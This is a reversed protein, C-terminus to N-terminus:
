EFIAQLTETPPYYPQRLLRNAVIVTAITQVAVLTVVINVSIDASGENMINLMNAPAPLTTVCVFLLYVAALWDVWSRKERLMTGRWACLVVGLVGIGQGVRYGVSEGVASENFWGMVIGISGLIAYVLLIYAITKGFAGRAFGPKTQIKAPKQRSPKPTREKVM